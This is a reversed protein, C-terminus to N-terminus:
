ARGGKIAKLPPPQTKFRSAADKARDAREGKKGGEGKKVHVYPLLAVLAKYQQASVELKGTAILELAPRPDLAGDIVKAVEPPIKATPVKKRGAGPRSGGSNKRPGGSRGKVGVM